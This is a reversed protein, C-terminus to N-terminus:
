SAKEEIGAEARWLGLVHTIAATAEPSMHPLTAALQRLVTIAENDLTGSLVELDKEIDPHAEWLVIEARYGLSRAWPGLRDISLGRQGAEIRSIQSVSLGIRRAVHDQTLGKERRIDRFMAAIETAKM